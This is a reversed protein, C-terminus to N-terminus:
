MVTSATFPTDIPNPLEILLVTVRLTVVSPCRSSETKNKKDEKEDTKNM